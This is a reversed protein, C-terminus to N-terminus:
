WCHLLTRTAKCGQWFKTNDTNQIKAMRIPTYHYRMPTNIQMERIIQSTSYKKMHKKEWRNIKKLLTDTLINPGKKKKLKKIHVM